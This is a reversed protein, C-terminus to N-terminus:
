SNKVPCKVHLKKLSALLTVAEKIISIESSSLILDSRDMYCLASTVISHEEM